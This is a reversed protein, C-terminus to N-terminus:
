YVFVRRGIAIKWINYTIQDNNMPQDFFSRGDIM